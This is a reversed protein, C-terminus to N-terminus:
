KAGNAADERKRAEEFKQVRENIALRVEVPLDCYCTYKSKETNITLARKQVLDISKIQGYDLSFSMIVIDNNGIGRGEVVNECVSIRTRAWRGYRMICFACYVLVAFGLVWMVIGGDGGLFEQVSLGATQAFFIVSLFYVALILVVESTLKKYYRKGDGSILERGKNMDSGGIMTKNSM